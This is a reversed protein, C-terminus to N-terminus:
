LFPWAVMTCIMEYALQIIRIGKAIAFAVLPLTAALLLVYDLTSVGARRHRSNPQRRVRDREQGWMAAM